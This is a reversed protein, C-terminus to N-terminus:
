VKRMVTAISNSRARATPAPLLVQLSILSMKGKRGRGAVLNRRRAIQAAQFTSEDIVAPYYSSIPTGTPEGKKNGGAYSKPQHEGFTAKNRLISDITTNDWTPSPGFPPVKSQNLFNAIAYSGLGGICLEFMRRVIEAREQVFVFSSRDKSLELWGPCASIKRM